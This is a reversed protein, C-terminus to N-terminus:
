VPAVGTEGVEQNEVDRDVVSDFDYAHKMTDAVEDGVQGTLRGHSIASIREPTSKM